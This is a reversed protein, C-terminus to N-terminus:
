KGKEKKEVVISVETEEALRVDPFDPALLSLKEAYPVERPKHYTPDIRLFLLAKKSLLPDDIASKPGRLRVKIRGSEDPTPKQIRVRINCDPPMLLAIPLSMEREAEVETVRVWVRVKTDCRIPLGDIQSILAADVSFSVRRGRLSIPETEITSIRELVSAPGVVTVYTPEVSPKAGEKYGHPLSGVFRPVVRLRKKMVRVVRVEVQPPEFAVVRVDSPLGFDAATIEVKLPVGIPPSDLRHVGKIPAGGGFLREGIRRPCRFRGRLVVQEPLVWLNESPVSSKAVRFKLILDDRQYEESVEFFVVLWIVFALFLATLKTRWNTVFVAKLLRVM